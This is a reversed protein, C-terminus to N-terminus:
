QVVAEKDELKAEGVRHCLPLEKFSVGGTATSAEPASKGFCAKHTELSSLRKRLGGGVSRKKPSINTSTNTSTYTSTNTNAHTRTVIM